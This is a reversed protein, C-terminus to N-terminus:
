FPMLLRLGFKNVNMGSSVNLRPILLDNDERKAKRYEKSTPGFIFAYKYKSNKLVNLMKENYAGFPYCYINNNKIIENDFKKIDVEIEQDTLNEIAGQYHMNYSHSYFEINPYKQRTKELVNPSMYDNLNGTWTEKGNQIFTGVVFVTANMNYKELLPFAYEYNSLFGDDFTILVSKFPLNINGAKWDTFEKMTLTKYDNKQLYKLHEEFNEVDITWVQENPFNNKEECTAINHYCLVPLKPVKYILNLIIISIILILLVIIFITNKKM